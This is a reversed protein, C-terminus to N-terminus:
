SQALESPVNMRWERVYHPSKIGHDLYFDFKMPMERFSNVDDASHGSKQLYFGVSQHYPYVYDLENLMSAMNSVRVKGKASRYCQLVNLVGGSYAPRVALDILTRELSTTRVTFSARAQNVSVSEVGLSSTHMGNLLVIRCEEHIAVNNSVRPRNQFANKLAEQTLSSPNRVHPKQEVNLYIEQQSFPCIGHLRAATLHTFYASPKLESLV